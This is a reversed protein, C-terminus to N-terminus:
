NDYRELLCAHGLGGDACAALLAFRQDEHQLRRSATTLLRSGTAGFPHGISLSGGRINMKDLDVDGVKKGGLNEEAFKDSGMAVLNSLIQGAFAIIISNFLFFYIYLSRWFKNTQNCKEARSYLMKQKHGEWSFTRVKM